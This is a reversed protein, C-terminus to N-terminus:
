MAAACQVAAQTSTHIRAAGAGVDAVATWRSLIPTSRWPCAISPRSRPATACCRGRVTGEQQIVVGGAGGRTVAQRSRPRSGSIAPTGSLDLAGVAAYAQERSEAVVGPLAPRKTSSWRSWARCPSPRVLRCRRQTQRRRHSSAGGRRVGHRAPARRHRLHGPGAGPVCTSLAPMPQGIYRLEADAKLPAPQEPVTLAPAVAMIEGYSRRVAPDTKIFVYGQEAATDEVPRGLQRAGEVRLMQRVTAGAQRLDPVAVLCLKSASTGVPDDLGQGTAADGGRTRGPSRWSTRRRRRWPPTCGRAWRSRPCSCACGTTRCSRSGPPPRQRSASPRGGSSDLYDAIQLRAYPLGLRAPGVLAAAGSAGAVILFQRRTIRRRKRAVRHARECDTARDAQEYGM